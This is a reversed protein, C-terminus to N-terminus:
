QLGGGIAGFLPAILGTLRGGEEEFHVTVPTGALPMANAEGELSVTVFFADDGASPGAFGAGADISPPAIRAVRGELKQSPLSAGSLTIRVTQGLEIQGIRTPAIAAVVARQPPRTKQGSQTAPTVIVGLTGGASVPAGPLPEIAWM